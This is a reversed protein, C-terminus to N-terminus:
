HLLYPVKPYAASRCYGSAALQPWNLAMRSARCLARRVRSASVIVPWRPESDDADVAQKKDTQSYM